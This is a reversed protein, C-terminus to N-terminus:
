KIIRHSIAVTKSIIYFLNKKKTVVILNYNLVTSETLYKDIFVTHRLM